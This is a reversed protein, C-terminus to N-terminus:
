IKSKGSDKNKRIYELLERMRQSQEQRQQKM